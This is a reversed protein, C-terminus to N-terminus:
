AKRLVLTLIDEDKLVHDLGVKQDDFKASPGSIRAFRFRGEFSRHLKQCAERVTAGRELMLPESYDPEGGQPRMYIRIFKLKSFIADKLKDLNEGTHASVQLYGERPGTRDLKTMVVIGPIYARNGSLVDILEDQTIDDRVLVSANTIGFEILMERLTKEDMHTLKTAISVDLGGRDRRQIKVDPPQRNLRIGVRNLETEIPLLQEPKDIVMLVLDVIRAASLIERGRGKGVAAGGIIGPLDVLQILAGKHKLAGPIADLTTFEYAAVKSQANTLANLLTSKGTSPFGVFAVTAMGQKKINFGTGGTKKRSAVAEKLKALRAKLLGIHHQTAKNYPTKLIEKEIEEIREEQSAM